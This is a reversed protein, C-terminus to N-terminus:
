ATLLADARTRAAQADSAEGLGDLARAYSKWAHPSNPRLATREALLAPSPSAGCGLAAEIPTQAFVDRQAHSGDAM